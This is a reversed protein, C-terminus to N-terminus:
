YYVQTFHIGVGRGQVGVTETVGDVEGLPDGEGLLDAGGEVVLLWWRVGADVGSVLWGLGLM